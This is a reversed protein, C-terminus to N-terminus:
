EAETRWVDNNGTGGMLLLREKHTGGDSNAPFYLAESGYKGGFDGSEVVQTWETLGSAFTSKWVNSLHDNDKKGGILYVETLTSVTAARDRTGWDPDSTVTVETWTVGADTSQYIADSRWGAMVYFTSEHIAVSMGYIERDAFKTTIPTTTWTDGDTSHVINNKGIFYIGNPVARDTSATVHIAKFGQDEGTIPQAPVWTVGDDTSKYIAKPTAVFLKDDALAVGTTSEHEVLGTSATSNWTLGQDTSKFVNNNNGVLWINNGNKLASFTEKGAPLNGVDKWVVGLELAAGGVEHEIAFKVADKTTWYETRNKIYTKYVSNATIQEIGFFEDANAKKFYAQTDSKYGMYNYVITTSGTTLLNGNIPDVDYTTKTNPLTTVTVTQNNQVFIDRAGVEHDLHFVVDTKIAWPTTRKEMYTKSAGDVVAVGIFTKDANRFYAQGAGAEGVYHYVITNPADTTTLHGTFVNVNYEIPTPTVNDLNITVTRFTKVFYDTASRGVENANIIAVEEPTTWFDVKGSLYITFIAPTGVLIRAGLYETPNDKTVSYIAKTETADVSVFYYTEVGAISINGTTADVVHEVGAVTHTGTANKIFKSSNGEDAPENSCAVLAIMMLWLSNKKM